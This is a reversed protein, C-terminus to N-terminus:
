TPEADFPSGPAGLARRLRDLRRYDSRASQRGARVSRKGERILAHVERWASGGRSKRREPEEAPGPLHFGRGRLPPFERELERSSLNSLPRHDSELRRLLRAVQTHATRFPVGASVLADALEVSATESPAGPPGSRLRATAVMRRLVTLQRLAEQVGDFLLPKGTQLDRQYGIPLAKLITLHAVLRGMAPGASARALEALDPNRKHPMLSSTTVFSEDLRVRDVEPMSGLVLEEALASLHVALLAIAGLTEVAADRDSVGDLSSPGARDFGLLRATLRRDIPLSTGALAGSGLPSETLRHRISRFRGADRLLRLAHTALLQAWYVRQAPQLHTWGAVVVRGDPSAARDLMAEAAALSALELSLLADRLYLVLDTAVQDNRSRATHLREGDKGIRRTLASEVNLHVDELAPDLRFRGRDADRAIARLGREIRRASAASLIRTRGLMRTHALSGWLDHPLLVADERTSDALEAARRDLPRSFRERLM